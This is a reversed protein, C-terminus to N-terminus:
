GFVAVGQIAEAVVEGMDNWILMRQTAFGHAVHDSVSGLLWWGSQNDPNDQLINIQWSLSSVPAMQKGFLKLAGPPLADGILMLEASRSLGDRDRLRGWRLWEAPALGDKIDVFEFNNTFFGEPGTYVKSGPPPPNQTSRTFGEHGVKSALAAMFVFNARLGLGAESVVDSQIFAANRGRRLKTATVRVRGALPGIFAIQASRLPPLDPEVDTAAQLALTSSLGGFATRGQMWDSPIETDFGSAHPIRDNLIAGLSAM